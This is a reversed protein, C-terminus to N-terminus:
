RRNTPRTIGDMKDGALKLQKYVEGLDRAQTATYANRLPEIAPALHPTCIGHLAQTNIAQRAVGIEDELEDYAVPLGCKHGLAVADLVNAVKRRIRPIHTLSEAALLSLRAVTYEQKRLAASADTLTDGIANFLRVYPEVPREHLLAAWGDWQTACNDTLPVYPKLGESWSPGAKLTQMTGRGIEEVVDVIEDELRALFAVRPWMYVQVMRLEGKRANLEALVKEPKFVLEGKANLTDLRGQIMTASMLERQAHRMHTNRLRNEHGFRGATFKASLAGDIAEESVVEVMSLHAMRVTSEGISDLLPIDFAQAKSPVRSQGRKAEHVGYRYFDFYEDSPIEPEPGAIVARSKELNRSGIWGVGPTEISEGPLVVYLCDPMVQMLKLEIPQKNFRCRLPRTSIPSNRLSFSDLRFRHM